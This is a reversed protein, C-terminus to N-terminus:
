KGRNLTGSKPTCKICNPSHLSGAEQQKCSELRSGTMTCGNAGHGEHGGECRRQTTVLGSRGGSKLSRIRRSRGSPSALFWYSVGLFSHLAKKPHRFGLNILIFTQLLVRLRLEMLRRLHRQFSLTLHLQKAPLYRFFLLCANALFLNSVGPCQCIILTYMCHWIYSIYPM